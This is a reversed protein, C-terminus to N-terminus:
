EGVEPATRKTKPNPSATEPLGKWPDPWEIRINFRKRMRAQADDRARDRKAEIWDSRIKERADALTVARGPETEMVLV